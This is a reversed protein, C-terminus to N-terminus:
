EIAMLEQVQLTDGLQFLGFVRSPSGATVATIFGGPLTIGPGWTSSAMDFFYMNSRTTVWIKGQWDGMGQPNGIDAPADPLTTWTSTGTAHRLFHQRSNDSALGGAVYTVNNGAPAWARARELAFPLTGPEPDVVGTSATFRIANNLPGRGGIMFVVGNNTEFAGAAEGRSVAPTYSALATWRNTSPSYHYGDNGFMYLSSNTGVFIETLGCACFDSSGAPPIALVDTNFLMTSTDFYRLFHNSTDGDDGIDPAFYIRNGGVVTANADNTQGTIVNSLRIQASGRPAWVQRCTVGDGVYGTNCGCNRGGATNFCTANADCGGNNTMCENVDTCTLGDGEYGTDCACTDGTCTANDDCAPVCTGPAADIAGPV